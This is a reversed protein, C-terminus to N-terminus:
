ACCAPRRASVAVGVRVVPPVRTGAEVSPDIAGTAIGAHVRIAEAFAVQYGPALPVRADPVTGGSSCDVLDVGAERLERALVISQELDWGGDVWDTASIRALVPREVPFAERVARVVRRTLTLGEPCGANPQLSAAVM